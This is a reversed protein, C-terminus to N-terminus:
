MPRLVFVLLSVKLILDSIVQLFETSNGFSYLFCDTVLVRLGATCTHGVQVFLAQLAGLEIM